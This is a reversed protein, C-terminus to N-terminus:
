NRTCRGRRLRDRGAGPAGPARLGPLRGRGHGRLRPGGGGALGPELDELGAHAAAVLDRAEQISALDKDMARWGKVCSSVVQPLGSQWGSGAFRHGGHHGCGGPYGQHHDDPPRLFRRLDAGPRRHRCGGHGGGRLTERGPQRTEDTQRVILLKRGTLKEDKITSVTTGIVRAILM